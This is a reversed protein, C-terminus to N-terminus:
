PITVGAVECVVHAAKISPPVDGATLLAKMAVFAEQQQTRVQEDCWLTEVTQALHEPTVEKQLIEPIVRRNLLLNILNAYKVKVMRRFIMVSVPHIKYAIAHVLRALGLELTITGSAALAARSAAFADYKDQDESIWLPQVPWSKVFGELYDRIQPVTPLVVVPDGLRQKLLGLTEGFAPALRKIESRRSGPLICLIDKDEAINHAARFRTADGREAGNETVAHGVFSTPLGERTFYPPEFPFLVMMHDYLRAVKKARGERWAWVTPAVYQIHPIGSDKLKKALRASFDQGDITIVAAPKLARAADATQKLRYLVRPIKPLIEILGFLALEKQHYLSDLGEAQMREGGVGAFRVQGNLVDRLARMLRAGLLDGSPECAVLFFCPVDTM